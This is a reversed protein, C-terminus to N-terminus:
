DQLITLKDNWINWLAVGERRIRRGSRTMGCPMRACQGVVFQIDCSHNLFFFLAQFLTGPLRPYTRLLAIFPSARDVRLM